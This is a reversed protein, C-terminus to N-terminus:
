EDDGRQRYGETYAADWAQRAVTKILETAPSNEADKAYAAWWADFTEM